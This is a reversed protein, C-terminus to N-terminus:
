ILAVVEVPMVKDVEYLDTLTYKIICLWICSGSLCNIVIHYYLILFLDVVVSRLVPPIQGTMRRVVSVPIKMLM